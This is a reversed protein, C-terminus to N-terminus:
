LSVCACGDVGQKEYISIYMGVSVSMEKCVGRLVNLRVRWRM